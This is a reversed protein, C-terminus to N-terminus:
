HLIAVLAVIALWSLLWRHNVTLPSAGNRTPTPRPASATSGTQATAVAKSASGGSGSATAIASGGTKVGASSLVGADVFRTCLGLNESQYVSLASANVSESRLAGYCTSAADDFVTGNWHGSGGDNFCLCSVQASSSLTLFGPTSSECDSLMNEVPTCGAPESGSGSGSGSDSGSGSGTSEQQFCSQQSSASSACCNGPDLCGLQCWQQRCNPEDPFGGPCSSLIESCVDDAGDINVPISGCTDCDQAGTHLVYLSILYIPILLSSKPFPLM